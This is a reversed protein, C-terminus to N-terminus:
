QSTTRCKTSKYYHNYENYQKLCLIGQFIKTRAWYEQEYLRVAEDLQKYEMSKVLTIVSSYRILGLTWRGWDRTGFLAWCPISLFLNLTQVLM